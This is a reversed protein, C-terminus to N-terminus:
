RCTRLGALNDSIPQVGVMGALLAAQGCHFMTRRSKPQLALSKKAVYFVSSADGLSSYVAMLMELVFPHNQSVTDLKSLRDLALSFQKEEYFVSAERLAKETKPPLNLSPRSHSHKDIRQQKHKALKKQRSRESQQKNHPMAIGKAHHTTERVSLTM